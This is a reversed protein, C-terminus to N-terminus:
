SIRGQYHAPDAECRSNAGQEVAPTGFGVSLVGSKPNLARSVPRISQLSWCFFQRNVGREPTSLTAWLMTLGFLL